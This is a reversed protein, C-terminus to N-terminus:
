KNPDCKVIVCSGANPRKRCENLARQEAESRTDYSHSYGYSDGNGRADCGWAFASSASASMLVAASILGLTMRKVVM